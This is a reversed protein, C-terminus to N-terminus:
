DEDDMSQLLRVAQSGKELSDIRIRKAKVLGQIIREWLETSYRRHNMDKQLQRMTMWGGPARELLRCVKNQAAALRDVAEDSGGLYRKVEKEYKAIALARDFCDDDIRDRGLDVAFALALKEARISTRNGLTEILEELATCDTIYYTKQAVAKEILAKTRMAGEVTNIERHPKLKGATEVDEPQYLFFFREDMGRKGTALQAWQESFDKETTCAILSTCYSGPPFCYQERRSKITNAFNGSEYMLLLNQGLTSSEIGAKISLLALEDYFMVANRCSTRAMEMGLGEASGATWVLSKGEANRTNPGAYDVIGATQLYQIADNASSSKIVRGKKGISVMYFSPTLRKGEINVKNALYNLLVVYAPMFMFEPYRSNVACVPKVLGEGISTGDMVWRPFVPYPITAIKPLEEQTAAPQEFTLRGAEKYEYKSISKATQRVEDDDLPPKCCKQNLDLGLALLQDFDLGMTERAKGLKKTLWNNRNGEVVEVSDIAVVKKTETSGNKDCWAVLWDPAAVIEVDRLVEYASGTVPHISGPAVVYRADVRASWLEKGDADAAQRNGMAISADTQRFYYHGKGPSSRVTFTEPLKQGTEAEIQAAFGPKDIELFWVGDPRALAVSACNANQYDQGWKQIQDLDTTAVEPWNTMFAIKTKPRLPIVPVNYNTVIHAIQEFFSQAPQQPALFGESMKAQVHKLADLQQEATMAM